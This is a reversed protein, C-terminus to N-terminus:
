EKAELELTIVGDLLQYKTLPLDIKIAKQYSKNKSVAKVELGKELRIISIDKISQVGPTELEYIIKDGMRKLNTKPESRKLKSFRKQTDESFEIPMIKIPAKPQKKEQLPIEKGNVMLKIKTKKDQNPTENMMEKELMKMTTNLMKGLMGGGMGQLMMALEDKQSVADNKGLMGWDEFSEQKITKGCNPCFNYAKKIRKNCNSCKNKTM